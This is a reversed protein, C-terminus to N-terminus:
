TQDKGFGIGNWIPSCTDRRIRASPAACLLRRSSAMLQPLNEVRQGPLFLALNDFPMKQWIMHVDTDRNWRLVRNCRHDPKQFPFAGYGNGPQAALLPIERALMEPGAAIGNGRNPKFKLLDALVDAFLLMRISGAALKSGNVYARKLAVGLGM